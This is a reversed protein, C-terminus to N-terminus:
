YIQIKIQNEVTILISYYIFTCTSRNNKHLSPIQLKENNDSTKVGEENEHLRDIKGSESCICYANRRTKTDTKCEM